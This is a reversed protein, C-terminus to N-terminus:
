KETDKKIIKPFLATIHSQTRLNQVMRKAMITTWDIKSKESNKIFSTSDVFLKLTYLKILM